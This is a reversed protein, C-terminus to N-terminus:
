SCNTGKKILKGESDYITTYDENYTRNTVDLKDLLTNAKQRILIWTEHKDIFEWDWIKSPIDDVAKKFTLLESRFSNDMLGNRFIAEFCVPTFAYDIEAELESMPNFAPGALKELEKATLSFLIISNILNTCYFDVQKDYELEVKSVSANETVYTKKGLLSKLSM